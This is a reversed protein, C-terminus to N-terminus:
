TLTIYSKNYTDALSKSIDLAELNYKGVIPISKVKTIHTFGQTSSETELTKM